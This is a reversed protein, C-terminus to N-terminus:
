GVLLWYCIVYITFLLLLTNFVKKLTNKIFYNPNGPYDYQLFSSNFNGSVEIVEEFEDDTNDDMNNAKSDCLIAERLSILSEKSAHVEYNFTKGALCIKRQAVDLKHFFSMNIILSRGCKHFQYDNIEPEIMIKEFVQGLLLPIEWVNQYEPKEKQKIHLAHNNSPTRKSTEPRKIGETHICCWNEGNISEIYIIQNFPFIYTESGVNLILNHGKEMSM